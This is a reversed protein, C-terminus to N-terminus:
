RLVELLINYQAVLKTYDRHLEKSLIVKGEDWAKFCGVRVEQMENQIDIKMQEIERETKM